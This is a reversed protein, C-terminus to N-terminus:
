QGLFGSDNAKQCASTQKFKRSKKPSKHRDVAKVASQEKTEVNVLSVWTGDGTVRVIHNLVENGDKHYQELFCLRLWERCKISV